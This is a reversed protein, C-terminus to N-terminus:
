LVSLVSCQLKRFPDPYKVLYRFVRKWVRDTKWSQPLVKGFPQKLHSKKIALNGIKLVMYPNLFHRIWTMYRQNGEQSKCIQSNEWSRNYWDFRLKLMGERPLGGPMQIKPFTKNLNGKGPCFLQEFARVGQLIVVKVKWYSRNHKQLQTHLCPKNYVVGKCAVLNQAYRMCVCWTLCRRTAAWIM